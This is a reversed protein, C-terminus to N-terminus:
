SSKMACSAKNTREEEPLSVREVGRCLPVRPRGQYRLVAHRPPFFSCPELPHDAISNRALDRRIVNFLFNYTDGSLRLGHLEASPGGSSWAQQQQFTVLLWFLSHPPFHTGPPCVCTFPGSGSHQPVVDAGPYWTQGLAGPVGYGAPLERQEKTFVM